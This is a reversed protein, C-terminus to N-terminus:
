EQWLYAEMKLLEVTGNKLPDAYILFRPIMVLEHTETPLVIDQCEATHSDVLGLIESSLSFGSASFDSFYYSRGAGYKWFSVASTNDTYRVLTTFDVSASTKNVYDNDQFVITRGRTINLYPTEQSATSVKLSDPSDVFTVNLLNVGLYEGMVLIGGMMTFNELQEVVYETTIAGVSDLTPRELVIISYNSISEILDYIDGDAGTGDNSFTNTGRSSFSSLLVNSTADHFYYATKEPHIIYNEGSFYGIICRGFVNQVDDSSNKFVLAYNNNPVGLLSKSLIYNEDTYVALENFKSGNIRYNNDTIGIKTVNDRTWGKPNGESMLFETMIKGSEISSVQHQAKMLYNNSAYTLTIVITITFIMMGLIFDAYWLQGKRKM